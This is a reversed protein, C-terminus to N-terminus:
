LYPFILGCRSLLWHTLSFILLFIYFYNSVFLFKLMSYWIQPEAFAIRSPFYIAIIVGGFIALVLLHILNYSIFDICLVQQM